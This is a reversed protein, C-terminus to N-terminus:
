RRFHPIIMSFDLAPASHTLSGASFRIFGKQALARAREPTVRGSIEIECADGVIERAKSLTKLDMNDLLVIDVKGTDLIQKVESLTRAEIAIPLKKTNNKIANELVPTIGGAADIHNDKILIMDYLGFRHNRGGGTAVAYKELPRLLPTTKRTDYIAAGFPRLVDAYKATLTAIGSMRQLFNLATREATFISQFHGSVTAVPTHATIRAGEKVEPTFITDRKVCQFVRKAVELGCVIGKQKAIIVARGRLGAPVTYRSTVDEEGVDEAVAQRILDNLAKKGIYEWMNPKGNM